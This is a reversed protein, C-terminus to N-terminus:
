ACPAHTQELQVTNILRRTVTNIIAVASSEPLTVYIEEKNKSLVWDAGVSPLVIINELKTINFSVQPNIFTITKDHNLTVLSYSNLDIDPRASLLGGMFTRIKDKCETENPTHEVKRSDIWARPRLGTIPQGTRKDTVRFSVLADAGAVLGPNEGNASPLSEISFDVTIGEKDFSQSVTSRPKNAAGSSLTKPTQGAATLAVSITLCLLITTRRMM